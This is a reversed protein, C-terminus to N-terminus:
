RKWRGYNEPCYDHDPVKETERVHFERIGYAHYSCIPCRGPFKRVFEDLEREMATRGTIWKWFTRLRNMM